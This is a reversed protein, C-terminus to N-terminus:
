STDKQPYRYGVGGVVVKSIILDSKIFLVRLGTVHRRWFGVMVGWEKHCCCRRSTIARRGRTIRAVSQVMGRRYCREDVQLRSTAMSPSYTGKMEKPLPHPTPELLSLRCTGMICTKSCRNRFLREPISM